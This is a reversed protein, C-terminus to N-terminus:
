DADVIERTKEVLWEKNALTQKPDTLHTLLTEANKEFAKRGVFGAETKLKLLKQLFKLFAFLPKKKYTAIQKNRLIFLRFSECFNLLYEYEELEYLCRIQISKTNVAYSYDTFAVARFFDLAKEYNGESYEINGTNFNFANEQEAAPLYQKHVTLFERAFAFDRLRCATNIINRYTTSQLNKHVFAVQQAIANKFLELLHALYNTDGLNYQMVSFNICYIYIESLDKESLKDYNDALLRRLKAFNETENRGLIMMNVHYYAPIPTVPKYLERNAAVAQLILELFPLNSEINLIKQNSLLEAFYRLKRILYAYDLYRMSEMLLETNKKKRRRNDTLFFKETASSFPYYDTAGKDSKKELEKRMKKFNKTVLDSMKREQAAKITCYKETLTGEFATQALFRHLLDTLYSMVNAIRYKKSEEYEHNPFIYEYIEKDAAAKEYPMRAYIFEFLRRTPEHKHFFPSRVFDDFRNLERADLM